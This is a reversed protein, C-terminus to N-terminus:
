TNSTRVTSSTDSEAAVADNGNVIPIMNMDLLSQLTDVLSSHSSKNILDNDTM